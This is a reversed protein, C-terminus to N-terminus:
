ARGDATEGTLWHDAALRGDEAPLDALISAASRRCTLADAVSAAIDERAATRSLVVHGHAALWASLGTEETTVVLCGHALGEVVPLGVQERWTPTRQSLLVLVSAQRLLAHIEERPPAVLLRVGEHVDALARAVPELPGQGALVLQARPQRTLVAPWADVLQRLGKRDSFAGLFLVLDPYRDVAAPCACPSPVAPVLRAATGALDRRLLSGYLEEAAATGYAIRDLRRAVFRTLAWDLRRRARSRLRSPVPQYNNRNEIAYSVVSLRRGRLAAGLRGSVVGLATRVLGPRLLPEHVELTSLRSTLLTVVMSFTGGRILDLGGTLRPDFDYRWRRHLISAPSLARARELHASRVSGYIRAHPYRARRM